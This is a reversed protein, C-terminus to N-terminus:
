VAVLGSRIGLRVADARNHAGLKALVSAVHFKATHESIGLREGIDRNSAGRAMWTLVDLERATLAEQVVAEEDEDLRQRGGDHDAPNGPALLDFVAGSAAWEAPVAALGAAAAAVAAKLQAANADPPILAWGPAGSAALEGRRTAPRPEALWVVPSPWQDEDGELPELAGEGDVLLVTGPPRSADAAHPEAEGTVQVDDSQLAQRLWARRSASASVIFVSVM